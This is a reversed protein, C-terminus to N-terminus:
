NDNKIVRYFTEDPYILGLESRALEEIAINGQKLDEIEEEVALNRKKLLESRYTVKELQKEVYQYQQYGNRGFVLDYALLGILVVLVLSLIQMIDFRLFHRM